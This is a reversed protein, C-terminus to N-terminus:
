LSEVGSPPESQPKLHAPVKGAQYDLPTESARKPPEAAEGLTQLLAAFERAGELRHAAAQADYVPGTRLRHLTELLATDLAALFPESSTLENWAKTRATDLLFRSKPTTLPM